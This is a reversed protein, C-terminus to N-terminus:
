GKTQESSGIMKLREAWALLERSAEAPGRFAHALRGPRFAQVVCASVPCVYAGRGPAVGSLDLEVAVNGSRVLRVLAPKPRVQRCGLCTRLVARSM